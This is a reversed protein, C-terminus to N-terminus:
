VPKNVTVKENAGFYTKTGDDMTILVDPGKIEVSAVLGALNTLSAGKRVNKASVPTPHTRGM